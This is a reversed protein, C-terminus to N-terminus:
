GSVSWHNGYLDAVPLELVSLPQINERSVAELWNRLHALETNEWYLGHQIYVPYVRAGQAALKVTLVSSDIGGSVLVAVNDM